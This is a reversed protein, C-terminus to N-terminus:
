CLILAFYFIWNLARDIIGAEGGHPNSRSCLCAIGPPMTNTVTDKCYDVCNDSAVAPYAFFAFNFITFVLLLSLFFKKFIM